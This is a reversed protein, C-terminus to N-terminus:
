RHRPAPLGVGHRREVPVEMAECLALWVERESVGAALAQDGTRVGLRDIVLDRLLARGYQEGFEAAVARQFESARM